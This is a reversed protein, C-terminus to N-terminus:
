QGAGSEKQELTFQVPPDIRRVLPHEALRSLARDHREISTDVEPKTGPLGASTVALQSLDILAPADSSRTLQLELM